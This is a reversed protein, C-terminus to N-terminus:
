PARDAPDVRRLLRELLGPRPEYAVPPQGLWDECYITYLALFLAVLVPGVLAGPVSMWSLGGFVGLFILLPHIQSSGRLFLPKLVNDVSSTLVMNWAALGLAWGPGVTFGVYVSVPLWVVLSGVLPVLSFAATCIGLFVVREVGFVQYGLAAVVGQLAATALTGAVVNNAFERFVSFLRDVYTERVPVLNKAVQLLRPGEMYLSVVAFFFIVADVGTSVLRDVLGPLSSGATNLLSLIGQQVPELLAALLDFDQPLYDSTSALFAPLYDDRLAEAQAQLEGSSVLEQVLQVFGIAEQLALYFVLGLPVFVVTALLIVTIAAAVARHSRVRALVREYIPWTVVVTTAAFLLVYVFPWFLVAVSVASAALTLLFWRDRTAQSWQGRPPLPEEPTPDSM